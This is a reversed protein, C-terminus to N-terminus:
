EFSCQGFVTGKFILLYIQAGTCLTRVLINGMINRWKLLHKWQEVTRATLVGALVDGHGSIYKTSFVNWIINLAPTEMESVFKVIFISM